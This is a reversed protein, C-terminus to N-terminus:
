KVGAPYKETVENSLVLNLLNRSIELLQERNKDSVKQLNEPTFHAFAERTRLAEEETELIIRSDALADQIFGSILPNIFDKGILQPFV